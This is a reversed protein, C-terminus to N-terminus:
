EGDRARIKAAIFAEHPLDILGAIRRVLHEEYKNLDGDSMAVLWLYEVVKEKQERSFGQKILSTFQHYDIADTAEAEALAVLDHTEEATLEFKTQLSTIITQREQETTDEDMRMMEVLLAGTAVQLKHAATQDVAESGPRIKDTFFRQIADLM